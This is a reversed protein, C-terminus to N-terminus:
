SGQICGTQRDKRKGQIPKFFSLIVAPHIFTTFKHNNKKM